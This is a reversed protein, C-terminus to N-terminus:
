RWGPVLTAQLMGAGLRAPSRRVVEEEEFKEGDRQGKKM